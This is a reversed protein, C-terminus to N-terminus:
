GIVDLPKLRYKHINISGIYIPDVDLAWRWFRHFHFLSMMKVKPGHYRDLQKLFSITTLM